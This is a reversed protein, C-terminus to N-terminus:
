LCFRFLMTCVISLGVVLLWFYLYGHRMSLEPIGPSGDSTVFNMGYMGTVFQAPVFVTTVITLVYLTDNMRRDSIAAHQSLIHNCHEVLERFDDIRQEVHDQLDELYPAFDVGIQKDELMFKLVGTLPRVTRQIDKLELKIAATEDLWARPFRSGMRKLERQFHKLRYTYAAVIPSLEDVCRDIISYLLFDSRHDLLKSSPRKLEAKIGFLDSKQDDIAETMDNNSLHSFSPVRWERALKSNQRDTFRNEIDPDNHMVRLSILTDFGPPLFMCIYSASLRVASEGKEIISKDSADAMDPESHDVYTGLRSLNPISKQRIVATSSDVESSHVHLQLVNLACFVHNGYRDIKAPQRHMEIADEVAVPHLQYKAALILVTPLSFGEAHVWRMKNKDTHERFIWEELPRYREGGLSRRRYEPFDPYEIMNVKMYKGPQLRKSLALLQSMKLRIFLFTFDECNFDGGHRKSGESSVTLLKKIDKDSLHIEQFALAQQLGEENSVGPFFRQYIQNIRRETLDFKSDIEEQDKIQTMKQKPEFQDWFEATQIDGEVPVYNVDRMSGSIVMGGVEPENGSATREVEEVEFEADRLAPASQMAPVPLQDEM